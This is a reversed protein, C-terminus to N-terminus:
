NQFAKWIMHTLMFAIVRTDVNFTYANGCFYTLITKVNCAKKILLVKMLLVLSEYAVGSQFQRSIYAFVLCCEQPQVEAIQFRIVKKM